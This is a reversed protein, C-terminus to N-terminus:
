FSVEDDGGTMDDAEVADFEDSASSGGVLRTGKGVKQINSLFFSVGRNGVKSYAQCVYSVRAICGAYFQGSQETIEDKVGDVIEPKNESSFRVWVEDDEHFKSAKGSRFPNRLMVTEGDIELPEKYGVGFLDKSCKNASDVMKKFADLADGELEDPKFSLTIQYKPKSNEDMAEPYFVKPFSVKGPPSIGRIKLPKNSSASAM